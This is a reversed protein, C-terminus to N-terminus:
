QGYLRALARLDVTAKAQEAILAEQRRAAAAIRDLHVDYAQRDKYAEFTVGTPQLTWPGSTNLTKWAAETEAIIQDTLTWHQARRARMTTLDAALKSAMLTKDPRSAALAELAAIAKDTQALAAGRHEAAAKKAAAVRAPAKKFEAPTTLSAEDLTLAYEADKLAAEYAMSTQTMQAVYEAVITEAPGPPAAPAHAPETRELAARATRDVGEDCGAAFLALSALVIRPPQVGQHTHNM